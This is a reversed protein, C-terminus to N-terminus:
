VKSLLRESFALPSFQAGVCEGHQWVGCQDCAVMFGEEDENDECICRTVAEDEESDSMANRKNLASKLKFLPKRSQSLKRTQAKM